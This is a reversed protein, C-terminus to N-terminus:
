AEKEERDRKIRKLERLKWLEYDEENNEDDTEFDCKVNEGTEKESLRERAVEEEIIKKTQKKTEAHLREKELQLQKEKEEEIEKERITVRDTRSM